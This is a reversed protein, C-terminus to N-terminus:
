SASALYKEMALALRLAEAPDDGAHGILSNCRTCLLGRIRGTTHCHDVALVRGQQDAATRPCMACHGGQESLMQEYQEVTIGYTKRLYDARVRQPTRTKKGHERHWALRCERCVRGRFGQASKEEGCTKCTMTGTRERTMSRRHSERKCERCQSYWGAGSRPFDALTKESQCKSCRKTDM